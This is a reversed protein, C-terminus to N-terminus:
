RTSVSPTQTPELLPSTEQLAQTAGSTNTSISHHLPRDDPDFVSQDQSM